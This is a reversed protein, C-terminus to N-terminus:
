ASYFSEQRRHWSWSCRRASFESNLNVATNELEVVAEHKDEFIEVRKISTLKDLFQQLLGEQAQPPLGRIRVSRQRIEATRTLGTEAITRSFDYWTPADSSQLEVSRHRARVRPDALTVAIRRKKLEHNNAM